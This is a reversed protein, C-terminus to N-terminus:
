ILRRLLNRSQFYQLIRAQLHNPRNLADPASDCEQASDSPLPSSAAREMTSVISDSNGDYDYEPLEGLFPSSARAM